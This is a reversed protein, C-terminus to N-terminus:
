TSTTDRKRPTYVPLNQRTRIEIVNHQPPSLDDETVTKSDRMDMLKLRVASILAMWGGAAGLLFFAFFCWQTFNEPM